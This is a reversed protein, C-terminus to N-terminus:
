TINVDYPCFENKGRERKDHGGHQTLATQFICTVVNLEVSDEKRKASEKEERIVYGTLYVM